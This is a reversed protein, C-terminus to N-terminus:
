VIQTLKNLFEKVKKKLSLKLISNDRKEQKINQYLLIALFWSQTTRSIHM